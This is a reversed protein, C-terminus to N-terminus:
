QFRALDALSVRGSENIRIRGLGAFSPDIYGALRYDLYQDGSLLLQLLRPGDRLLNTEVRLDVDQRGGAPVSFGDILSGEGVAIGEIQLGVRGDQVKLRSSNPNYVSLRARFSQSDLGARELMLGRLAVEPPYVPPQLLSCGTLWLGLCLLALPRRLDSM